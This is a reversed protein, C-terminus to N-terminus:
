SRLYGSVYVQVAIELSESDGFMKGVMFRVETELALVALAWTGGSSYASVFAVSNESELEFPLALFIAGSHYLNNSGNFAGSEVSQRSWLEIRGSNWKRYQWSASGATKTGEEIVFDAMKNGAEGVYLDGRTQLDWAIDLVNDREPPKGFGAATGGDNGKFFVSVTDIYDTYISGQGLQDILRMEVFYTAEALVHGEGLIKAVGSSMSEYAGFSEGNKGYRVQLSASNAGGLSSFTFSSKASIYTGEENAVGASNCRFISVDSLKPASYAHVTFEVDISTTRERTDTVYCTIKKTGETRLIGTRYPATNITSGEFSFRYSKPTAGYSKDTSIKATNISIEAKSYGQVFAAIGEARTGANYPSVVFSGAQPELQVSKPVAIKVDYTSSGVLTSGNYTECTITCTGDPASPIQNCLRMDPTWSVSSASTKSVITGTANLFTYKLTHTFTTAYRTISITLPSGINGSTASVLSKAPDVALSYTYTQDRSSGSGSYLRIALATTGSTKNSVTFWGSTYTIASSWTSPSAAKLTTSAVVSGALTIQAYIPYGFYSGSSTLPNITISIRYQMDSVSRRHEYSFSASIVPANGWQANTALNAM